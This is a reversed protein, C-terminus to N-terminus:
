VSDFYTEVSDSHAKIGLLDSLFTQFGIKRCESFKAKGVEDAPFDSFQACGCVNVTRLEM